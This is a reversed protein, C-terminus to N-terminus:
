NSLRQQENINTLLETVFVTLSKQAKENAHIAGDEFKMTQQYVPPISQEFTMPYYGDKARLIAVDPDCCMDGNQLFYHAVSIVHWGQPTRDIIEICAAMYSTPANDFKAHDGLKVLGETLKDLIKAAKPPLKMM